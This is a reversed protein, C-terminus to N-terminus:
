VPQVVIEVDTPNGRTIVLTATTSTFLLQGDVTIRASVAYTLRPDIAAPDYDLAFPIPVQRGGTVILQESLVIAPADALSIDQLAVRVAANPPLAIRERYIVTGTVSATAAPQPTATAAGPLQVPPLLVENAIPGVGESARDDTDAFSPHALTAFWQFAGLAGRWTRQSLVVPM